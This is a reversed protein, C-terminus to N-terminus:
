QEFSSKEPLVREFVNNIRQKTSAFDVNPSDNMCIAKYQHSQIARCIDETGGEVNFKKGFKHKNYPYFQGTLLQWFKFAFQSVDREDRFRHHCTEDMLVPEVAWVEELIQKRYAQPLHHVNLGFFHRDNLVSLLLNKATAHPDRLSYWKDPHERRCTQRDFHQSAFIIDNVNINNMLMKQFFVIPSEELSDCPLGNVFFDEPEVPATLFFDDNFYVFHESLGPVRHLNLEIPHSSFVPLYKAPIYDSHRVFNLKPCELNLWEPVHGCTILYVKNVWPAYKEVSRFWYRLNEWDRYRSEQSDTQEGPADPHLYREMERRWEPDNGDVWAVVFDIPVKHDM